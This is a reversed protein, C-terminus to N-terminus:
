KNSKSRIIDQIKKLDADDLKGDANVDANNNILGKMKRIDKDNIKADGKVDAGEIDILKKFVGSMFEADKEDIKGDNNIDANMANELQPIKKIISELVAIDTQDASGDANIDFYQVLVTSTTVPVVTRTNLGNAQLGNLGLGNASLGNTGRNNNAPAVTRTNLGNADLGNIVALTHTNLGNAALGNGSLGNVGLGNLYVNVTAFDSKTGYEAMIAFSSTKNAATLFGDVDIAGASAPIVKWKVEIDEPRGKSDLGVAKFKFTKGPEMNVVEPQVRIKIISEKESVAIGFPDFKFWYMESQLLQDGDSGFYHAKIQWAYVNGQQLVEASAPYLFNTTGIGDQKYVPRNLAIEEPSAQGTFVPYLYFDYYSAQSFWQFLPNNVSIVEPTSFFSNGPSIMEPKNFYNFIINSGDSEAIKKGANDFIEVIYTYVDAPLTANILADKIFAKNSTNITYKDFQKNDFQVMDLPQMATYKKTATGILGNTQAQLKFKVTLDRVQNDNYIFITFLLPSKGPNEDDFDSLHIGQVPLVMLEVRVTSGSAVVEFIGPKTSTIGGSTISIDRFGTPTTNEIKIHAMGTETNTVNFSIVTIGLGFSVQANSKFNTGFGKIMVDMEEGPNGSNPYVSTIDGQAFLASSLLFCSILLLFYQKM